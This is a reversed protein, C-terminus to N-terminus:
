KKKGKCRQLGPIIGLSHPIWILSFIFSSVIIDVDLSFCLSYILDPFCHGALQCKVSGTCLTVVEKKNM